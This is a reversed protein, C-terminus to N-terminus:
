AHFVGSMLGVAGRRLMLRLGVRMHVRIGASVCAVVVRRVIVRMVMVVRGALALLRRMRMLVAVPVAMVVMVRGRRAVSAREREGDRQIDRDDDYLRDVAHEGVRGRQESIGSM